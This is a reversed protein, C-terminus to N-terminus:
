DSVSNVFLEAVLDGVADGIISGDEDVMKDIADSVIDSIADKIQDEILDKILDKGLQDIENDTKTKPSNLCARLLAERNGLYSAVDYFKEAKRKNRKVGLGYEYLLGIHYYASADNQKAAKQFLELAKHFNKPTGEGNM